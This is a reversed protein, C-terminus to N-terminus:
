PSVCASRGPSRPSRRRGRRRASRPSTARSSPRRRARAPRCPRAPARRSRRSPRRAPRRPPRSRARPRARPSRSPRPCGAPGRARRRRRPRRRRGSQRGAPSRGRPPSRSRRAGRARRTGGRRTHRRCCRRRRRPSCRARGAPAAARRGAARLRRGRAHPGALRHRALGDRPEAELALRGLLVVDAEAREAERPAVVAAESGREEVRDEAARRRRPEELLDALLAPHRVGDVAEARLVGIRALDPEVDARALLVEGLAQLDRRVLQGVHGLSVHACPSSSRALSFRFPRM